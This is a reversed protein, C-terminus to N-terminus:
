NAIDVNINNDDKHHKEINVLSRAKENVAIGLGMLVWFLPAVTISSDNAMGAVMYSFTGVLIAVGVKSYFNDYKSRIYLKIGSLFYFGYFVIFALLSLTGTQVGIQLYLNHPKTLLQDGYGFNAKNVYDQQPFEIVFTDAGGGLIFNEKLLPISRSWIYGRGSAYSEYGTFVASPATVIKDLRNYQNLYYYTGDEFQNTFVWEKGDITVVYALRDEIMTIRFVLGNFREDQITFNGTDPENSLHLITGDDDRARFTIGESDIDLGTSITNGKYTITVEDKLTQIDTLAVESKRVDLLELYQKILYDDSKNNFLVLSLVLLLLGPIAFYFYKIIYRWLLILALILSIGISVIGATSRSGILCISVGIIAIIYLVIYRLRKEFITLLLLMPLLLAAYVGVYNPNYFTGYVRNKEFTFSITDLQDWYIRPMILKLGFETSFFDNGIYQTFGIISLLVVGIVLFNLIMMIDEQTQVFLYIYYVVLCYGLLVFESEFHSYSGSFSINRYKSLMSSLLSLLAYIGLPFFVPSFRLFSKNLYAKVAIIIVMIFSVSIFFWQKYYLFFDTYQNNITFWPFESLPTEFDYMKVILPIIIIIFAIPILYMINVKSPHEISTKYKSIKHSQNRNNNKKNSSVTNNKGKHKISSM